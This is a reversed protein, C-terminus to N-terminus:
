FLYQRLKEIVENVDFPKGVHDNMGAAHSKEIDDLFVNATMAIIPITKAKPTDLARIQRTAEYGDVGPMQIDMLILDYKDPTEKFLRVAEAGNVACDIELLTPEFLTLVIERNIAVDEALLIHKGKFIVPATEIADGAQEKVAEYRDPDGRKIWVTFAFKAGKGAESEVWIKGNM